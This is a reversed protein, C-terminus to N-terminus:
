KFPFSYIEFGYLGIGQDSERSAYNAFEKLQTM